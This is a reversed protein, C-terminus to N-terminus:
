LFSRMCLQTIIGMSQWLQSDWFASIVINDASAVVTTGIKHGALARVKKGIDVIKEKSVKGKSQYGPFM